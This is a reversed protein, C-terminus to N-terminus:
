SWGDGQVTHHRRTGAFAGDGLFVVQTGEPILGSVLEVMAIHLDEPCHGQPGQRM